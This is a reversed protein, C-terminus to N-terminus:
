VALKGAQAATLHGARYLWGITDIYTDRMEHFHIGMADVSPSRVAGPWQTAFEMAERSLPFDFPHVRKMLDGLSGLGRLLRGSVRVRRVRRGTLDDLLAITESWSRYHGTVVHRGPGDASVLAAIVAALDRVDVVEIGSTTDFLLQTLWTRVTHNGESLRSLGPDDPGVVLTPYVTRIPAGSDQLPRVFREGDAKSRAYASHSHTIPSSETMVAGPALLASASSVYVISGVGRETAGGVVLEVSRLNTDRVEQARRAEIAVVAACHVLADVGDLATAVAAPDTVDGIVLDGPALDPFVRHAKARDRAFLRVEHRAAQVARV